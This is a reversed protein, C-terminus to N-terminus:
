AAEQSSPTRGPTKPAVAVVQQERGMGVRTRGPGPGRRRPQYCTLHPPHPHTDFLSLSWGLTAPRHRQNRTLPQHHPSGLWRHCRDPPLHATPPCLHLSPRQLHPLVWLHGQSPWSSPVWTRGLGCPRSDSWPEWCGPFGCAPPGLGTIECPPLHGHPQEWPPSTPVGATGLAPPGLAASSLNLGQPSVRGGGGLARLSSPHGEPSLVPQQNQSELELYLKNVSCCSRGPVPRPAASAGM